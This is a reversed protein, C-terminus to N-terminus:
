QNCYSANTKSTELHFASYQSRGQCCSLRRPVFRTMLYTPRPVLESTHVPAPRTLMVRFLSLSSSSHLRRLLRPRRLITDAPDERGFDSASRELCRHLPLMEINDKSGALKFLDEKKSDDANDPVLTSESQAPSHVEPQNNQNRRKRYSM